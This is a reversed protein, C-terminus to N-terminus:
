SILVLATWIPRLATQDPEFSGDFRRTGAAGAEALRELLAARHPNAHALLWRGDRDLAARQTGTVARRGQRAVADRWRRLIVSPEVGVTPADHLEDSIEAGVDARTLRDLGPFVWDSLGWNECRVGVLTWAAGHADQPERPRLRVLVDERHSGVIFRISEPALTWAAATFGCTVAGHSSDLVLEPRAAGRRAGVITAEGCWWAQTGAEVPDAVAPDSPQRLSARVGSGRGLRGDASATASSILLGARAVEAHTAAMEPLGVPGRYAGTVSSDEGPLVSPLTWVKGETDALHTVVGAYGSDTVVPESALGTLRLTGVGSYRRRATGIDEVDLTGTAQGHRLRHAALACDGLADVAAATVATGGLRGHLAGFTAALRPLGALRAAAVVRLVSVRDVPALGTLGKALILDVVVEARGLAEVAAAGLVPGETHAPEPEGAPEPAPDSTPGPADAVPCALLVQALHLCKPSLLCDCSGGHPPDLIVTAKGLSVSLRAITWTDPDASDLKKQLRSPLAAVTEAVFGADMGPLQPSATM